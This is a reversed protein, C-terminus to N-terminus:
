DMCEYIKDCTAKSLAGGFVKSNQAVVYVPYGDVTAYGTVVGLGDVGDGYFENKAFSFANFEVFSGEDIIESINKRVDATKENLEAKRQKLLDINYM